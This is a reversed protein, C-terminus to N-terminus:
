YGDIIIESEFISISSNRKTGFNDINHHGISKMETNKKPATQISGDQENISTPLCTKDKNINGEM